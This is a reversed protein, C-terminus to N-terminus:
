YKARRRLTVGSRFYTDIGVAILILLGKALMHFNADAGLTAIGNSLVQIM